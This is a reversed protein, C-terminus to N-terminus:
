FLFNASNSTCAAHDSLIGANAVFRASDVTWYEEYVMSELHSDGAQSLLQAIVGM